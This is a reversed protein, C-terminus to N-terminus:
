AAIGTMTLKVVGSPLVNKQVMWGKARAVATAVHVGYAQKLKQLKDGLKEVIPMGKDGYRDFALNYTGSESKVVGIEWTTGPVGIAHECNGKGQYYEHKTQGEKYTLGLEQCASKLCRLDKIQTAISSIHSM